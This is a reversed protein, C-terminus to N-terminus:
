LSLGKLTQVHFIPLIAKRYRIASCNQFMMLSIRQLQRIPLEQTKRTMYSRATLRTNLRHLVPNSIIHIRKFVYNTIGKELVYARETEYDYSAMDEVPFTLTVVQSEGPELLKTKAFDGLVVEAKEIGSEYYPANFYVQVVDKGAYEGINTVKVKLTINEDVKGLDQEEVEWDFTTYSLGYGFPYVVAEDYNIFGEAAATEYYRYGVYIGEEYHVFTADGIANDEDINTYKFHGFNAFTPDKTFDAPYIDVTHGSPNVTGDLIRGVSNFGTKGPFGVCLVADIMPDEDLEGLEMAASSNIIVIVTEFNEKALEIAQKEDYCLELQHQGEEYHDDWGEIDQSLDGGEGAPRSITIIAADNYDKFSDVAEKTYNEIPMEGSNYSSDKPKDMIIESKPNEYIKKPGFFGEGM